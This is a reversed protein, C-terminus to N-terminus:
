AFLYEGVTAGVTAPAQEATAIVEAVMEQVESEISSVLASGYTASIMSSLRRMPDRDGAIEREASPRYKEADGVHHGDLRYAKVEVLSPRRDIRAIEISRDAVAMLENVDFSDVSYAEIGFARARAAVGAGSMAYSSPTSEAWGNNECVYVVPLEWIAALNMSEYLVGQNVAGDGFFCVAIASDSTGKLAVAAGTGVPVSGGVIANAGLFGVLVDILHMSGGRGRCIGEDSGFIEKALPLLRSGKAIAHGHGRHTSTALDDSTLKGLFAAAIVEQGISTHLFGPIKGRLFRDAVGREFTRITIATRFLLLTDNEVLPPPDENDM